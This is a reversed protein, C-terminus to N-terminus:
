LKGNKARNLFKRAVAIGVMTGFVILIGTMNATIVGTVTTVLSSASTADILTM